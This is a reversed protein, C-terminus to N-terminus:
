ARYTFSIRSCENELVDACLMLIYPRYTFVFILYEVLPLCFSHSAAVAVSANLFVGLQKPYMKYVVLDALRIELRTKKKAKM